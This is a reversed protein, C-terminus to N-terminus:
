QRLLLISTILGVVGLVIAGIGLFTVAPDGIYGPADIIVGCRICWIGGPTIMLAGIFVIWVWSLYKTGQVITNM